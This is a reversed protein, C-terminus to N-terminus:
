LLSLSEFSIDKLIVSKETKKTPDIDISLFLKLSRNSCGWAQTFHRYHKPLKEYAATGFHKRLEEPFYDRYDDYQYLYKLFYFAIDGSIHGECDNYSRMTIHSKVDIGKLLECGFIENNFVYIAIPDYLTIFLPLYGEERKM